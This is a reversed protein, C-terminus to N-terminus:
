SFQVINSPEIADDLFRQTLVGEVECIADRMLKPWYDGALIHTRVRAILEDEHGGSVLRWEREAWKREEAQLRELKDLGLRTTSEVRRPLPPKGVGVFWPCLSDLQAYFCSLADNPVHGRASFLREDLANQFAKADEFTWSRQRDKAKSFELRTRDCWEKAAKNM